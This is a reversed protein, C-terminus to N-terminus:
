CYTTWQCWYVYLGNPQNYMDIAVARQVEPPWFGAYAYEPFGARVAWTDMYEGAMQFLGYCGGLCRTASYARPDGGSEHSCVLGLGPPLDSCYGAYNAATPPYVVTVATEPEPPPPPEPTTLPSPVPLPDRASRDAATAAAIRDALDPPAPAAELVPAAAPNMWLIMWLSLVTCAIIAARGVWRM